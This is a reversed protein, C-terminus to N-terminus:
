KLAGNAAELDYAVVLLVTNERRELIANELKPIDDPRYDRNAEIQQNVYDQLAGLAQDAKGSDALVLVAGEECSAGASRLVASDALDERSLGVDGLHYLAFATDADLPELEESFAGADALAQVTPAPDFGAVEVPKGCGALALLLTLLLMLRVQRMKM